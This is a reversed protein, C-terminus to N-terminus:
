FILTGGNPSDRKFGTEPDYGKGQEIEYKPIHGIGMKEDFGVQNKFKEPVSIVYDYFDKKIELFRKKREKLVNISKIERYKEWIERAKNDRYIGLKGNEKKVKLNNTKGDSIKLTAQENKEDIMIEASNEDKFIRITTGDDSKCIEANEAWSIDFDDMLSIIFRDSDNGPVDRWDFLYEDEVFVDIKYYDEKILAFKSIPKRKADDPTRDYYYLEYISKIMKTEEQAKARAEKFYGNILELFETEMIETKGELLERVIKLIDKDYIYDAYKKEVGRENVKCLDVVEVEGIKNRKNRNCRGAVQIISDLPAMDRYVCDCDIDVGAEILQTSVVVVKHKNKILRRIEEIRKRREKPIISTSLYSVRFGSKKVMDKITDYFEVSAGITNFVFLYSNKSWDTLEECLESIKKRASDIHLCVRNLEESEFYKEYDDVLEKYEAEEFILPKTATMLIIRCNFYDAMAILVVRVLNWYEIPINQVEDLIIISNVINHFKKLSRNKYGILTHFLQIFTTVIIESEWSEILALSEDVDKEKDMDITKYFIESLHHHKLLYPSQNEEFDNIQTLVHDFVDFNQDIISTFPLSYIIRPEYKLNLESKLLKRLKLAASLSALTKGTGTPATITFIKHNKYEAEVNKLVSKRIETRIPNIKSENETKFDEKNLYQEALNEALEKREIERIRGAHKKDSDILVSYLLQVMLYYRIDQNNKHRVFYASKDLEKILPEIDMSDGIDKEYKELDAFLNDTQIGYVRLLFAYEEEIQKRNSKIDSLQKSINRFGANKFLKEADVAEEISELDLHHRKVVFYAILPLFKYLAEKEPTRGMLYRKVLEFAFLASVLSHNAEEGSPYGKLKNQFFSTYKGFDHAVGILYSIDAIVGRDVSNFEKSEIIEKSKESVYKLHEKLLIRKPESHSYFEM